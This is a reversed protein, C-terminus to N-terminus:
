QNEGDINCMYIIHDQVWVFLDNELDVAIAAVDANKKMVIRHSGDLRTRIIQKSDGIDTYFLLRYYILM